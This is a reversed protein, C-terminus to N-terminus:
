EVEEEAEAAAEDQDLDKSEFVLFSDNKHKYFDAVDYRGDVRIVVGEDVGAGGPSLAVPRDAYQAHGGLWEKYFNKETFGELFTNLDVKRGRWLEPVVQMGYRMGFERVQDHSLDVLEGGEMTLAVRYIYLDMSGPSAEYTYGRQIVEGSSTYGVLEGYVIFGKPIDRGWADLAETWVDKSYFHNQNPNDPDKVVKRSGAIYAYETETVNIGLRKALRELWSLTRRVPVNGMRVSTGHLKQTVIVQAEDPISSENRLYHSTDIHQPFRAEDVRKLAKALSAQTKGLNAEKVPLVFKRSIELGNITDVLDGPVIGGTGGTYATVVEAPLALGSSINGRLKLAKVRRNKGLYGKQGQDFNKDQSAHLNAFWALGESIQSETPFLIALEGERDVWSEDVIVSLGAHRLIYLRDSNPAKEIKPVEFVIGAYNVENEVSATM